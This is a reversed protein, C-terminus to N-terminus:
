LIQSSSRWLPGRQGPELWDTWLLADKMPEFKPDFSNESDGEEDDDSDWREFICSAFRLFNTAEGSRSASIYGMMPVNSLRLRDWANLIPPLIRDRAGRPLPELFWFILSGDVMALLPSRAEGAGQAAEEIGLEALMEAEAVMRQYGMWEETGIGWQRSLYLDENKYFVEPQSDLKPHRSQGYHLAIRGTNLLYCYAIEHHSPAIQSGDTALISHAAPAPAIAVRTDLPEVPEAATFGLRDREQQFIQLLESQHQNARRLLSRAEAVKERAAIAERTLHDGIGQMQKALAVFDLM